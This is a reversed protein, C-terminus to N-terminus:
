RVIKTWTHEWVGDQDDDDPGYYTQLKPFPVEVRGYSPDNIKVYRRNNSERCGKILILHGGRAEGDHSFWLIGAVVPRESKIETKITEFTLDRSFRRCEVNIPNKRLVVKVDEADCGEDCSSPQGCCNRNTFLLKAISCQEIELEYFGSIMEICAAWCWNQKKQRIMPVPLNLPAGAVAEGPASASPQPVPGPPPTSVPSWIPTSDVPIPM